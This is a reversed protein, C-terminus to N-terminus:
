QQAGGSKSKGEVKDKGDRGDSRGTKGLRGSETPADTSDTATDSSSSDSLIIQVSTAGSTQQLRAQLASVNNQLMALAKPDSAQFSVKLKGNQIQVQLKVEGPLEPTEQLTITTQTEGIEMKSVTNAILQLINESITKPVEQAVPIATNVGSAVSQTTSQLVQDPPSFTEAPVSAEPKAPKTTEGKVMGDLAPMGTSFCQPPAAPVISPIQADTPTPPNNQIGVLVQGVIGSFEPAIESIVEQIREEVLPASQPNLSLATRMMEAAIDPAAAPYIKVAAEM